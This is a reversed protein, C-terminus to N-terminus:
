RLSIFTTPKHALTVIVRSKPKIAITEGDLQGVVRSHTTFDIEGDDEFRTGYLHGSAMKRMNQMNDTPKLSHVEVDHFASETLLVPWRFYKAMRQGNVFIREFLAKQQGNEEIHFADAQNLIRMFTRIEHIRRRLRSAHRATHASRHSPANFTKATQATIGFSVYTVAYRTETQNGQQIRCELPRVPTQQASLLHSARFVRRLRGHLITAIDNSNGAAFPLIPIDRGIDRIVNVASGITGDGGAVILWCAETHSQLAAKLREQNANYSGATTRVVELALSPFRKHLQDILRMTRHANTSGPNHWIILTEPLQVHVSM